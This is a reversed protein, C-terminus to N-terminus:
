SLSEPASFAGELHEIRLDGAPDPEIGLVDFRCELDRRDRSEALWVAAALALRAQKRFSVAELPSGCARSRRLKVEVFAVLAGRRAVLDIEAGCRRLRREVIRYGRRELYREAALEGARGLPATAVPKGRGL